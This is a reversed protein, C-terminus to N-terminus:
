PHVLSGQVILPVFSLLYFEGVTTEVSVRLQLNHGTLVKVFRYVQPGNTAALTTSSYNSWTSGLDTSYEITVVTSNECEYEIQVELLETYRLPTDAQLLGTAIWSRVDSEDSLLTSDTPDVEQYVNFQGFSTYGSFYLKSTDSSGVESDITGSASDFTGTASDITLGILPSIAYQMATVRFPYEIPMWSEDIMSYQYTVNRNASEDFVTLIYRKLNNDYVGVASDFDIVNQQIRRIISHGINQVKSDTVVYIGDHFLGIAGGPISAFTRPSKSGLSAFQRGGRVPADVNGTESLLWTSNERIMLAQSDNIPVVTLLRDVYGGPTSLFDEYGSGIGSFDTSNDKASWRLRESRQAGTEYVDCLFIRSMFTTISRPIYTNTILTITNSSWNWEYLGDRGNTWIMTNNWGTYSLHDTLLGTLVPAGAPATWTAGNWYEITTQTMRFIHIIGDKTVFVGVECNTSTSTGITGTVDRPQIRGDIIVFNRSDWAYSPELRSARAIYNVGKPPVWFPVSQPVMQPSNPAQQLRSVRRRAIPKAM